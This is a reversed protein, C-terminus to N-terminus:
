LNASLQSALLAEAGDLESLVRLCTEHYAHGDVTLGIRRTTRGLLRTGLREELWAVNKAVASKSLGM